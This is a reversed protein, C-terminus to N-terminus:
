SVAAAGERELVGSALQMRQMVAALDQAQLAQPLRALPLAHLAGRLHFLDVDGDARLDFVALDRLDGAAMREGLRACAYALALRRGREHDLEAAPTVLVRDLDAADAVLGPPLGWDTMLLRGIEAACLGLRQQEARERALLGRSPLTALIGRPTTAVLAVRGLFSLVVASVLSGRDDAGVAQTLRQALESAMASATWTEELLRKREPTDSLFSSRVIYQLCLSRVTNLGLYTVAQGISDVARGLGYLPSNVAALVKAAILPEASILDVLQASSAGGFFDPSLLHHLLRPPRPVDKFVALVAAQREAPLEVAPRPHFDALEAPVPVAAQAAAIAGAAADAPSPSPLPAAAPRPAGSTSAPRRPAPRPPRRTSSLLWAGGGILALAALAMWLLNM